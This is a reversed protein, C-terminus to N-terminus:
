GLIRRALLGAVSDQLAHAMMGPLLSRRWEALLGFLIGFVAIMVMYKWGQYGHGAGFALAQVLIGGTASRTVATFQRQMYGRFIIEECFGATAALALFLAIETEDRPLLNRIAQNPVAKLLHAMGNLIGGSVLLFGIAIAVDRVVAGIGNWKGGVLDRLGLGRRRIGYWVFGVMLWELLMVQVYGAYRGHRSSVPTLNRSRASAFSFGALICVLVVTHWAGAIPRREAEPAPQPQITQPSGM